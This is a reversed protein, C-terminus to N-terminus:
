HVLVYLEENADYIYLSNNKMNKSNEFYRGYKDIFENDVVSIYCVDYQRLYSYFEEDTYDRTWIDDATGFSWGGIINKSIEMFEYNAKQYIWGNDNQAIVVIDHRGPIKEKITNKIEIIEKRDQFPNNRNYYESFTLNFNSLTLIFCIIWIGRMKRVSTIIEFFFIILFLLLLCNLYRSFSALKTAEYESFKYMYMVLLGVLYLCYYMFFTCTLFLYTKNNKLKSIIICSVILLGVHIACIDINSITFLSSNFLASLFNQFVTVRYGQIYGLVVKAFDSLIVKENFSQTVEYMELLANWSLHAFLVIIVSLIIWISDEKYISVIRKKFVGEKELYLKYILASYVILVFFKGVDKLLYLTLMGLIIIIWEFSRLKESKLIFIILFAAVIPLIPDILITYYFNSFLITPILIVAGLYILTKGQKRFLPIFCSMLAFYFIKSAVIVYYEVYSGIILQIDYLFLSFGPLYSKFQLHSNPFVSLEKNYYMSKVVAGWHSFEDWSSFYRGRNYVILLLVSLVFFIIGFSFFNKVFEKISKDFIIKITGILYSAITITWIMYISKDLINFIGFLYTIAIMGFVTIPLFLEGNRKTFASGFYSTSCLILIIYLIHM